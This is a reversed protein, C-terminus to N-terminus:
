ITSYASNLNYDGVCGVSVMAEQKSTLKFM